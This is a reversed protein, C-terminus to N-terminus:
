LNRQLRNCQALESAQVLFLFKYQNEIRLMQLWQLLQLMQLMYCLQYPPGKQGKKEGVKENERMRSSEEEQKIKRTDGRKLLLIKLHVKNIYVIM